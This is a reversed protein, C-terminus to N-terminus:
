KLPLMSIEFAAALLPAAPPGAMEVVGAGLGAGIEALAAAPAEFYARNGIANPLKLPAAAFDPAGAAACVRCLVPNSWNQAANCRESACDMRSIDPALWAFILKM